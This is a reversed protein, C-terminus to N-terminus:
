LRTKSAQLLCHALFYQSYQFNIFGFNIDVSKLYNHQLTYAEVELELEEYCSAESKHKGIFSQIFHVMEHMLAAKCRENELGCTSPVHILNRKYDYAFTYDGECAGVGGCVVSEIEDPELQIIELSNYFDKFAQSNIDVPYSLNSLVLSLVLEKM